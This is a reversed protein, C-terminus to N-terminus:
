AARLHRYAPVDEPFMPLTEYTDTGTLHYGQLIVNRMAARAASRQAPGLSYCANQFCRFLYELSDADGAAAEDLTEPYLKPSGVFDHSGLGRLFLDIYPEFPKVKAKREAVREKSTRPVKVPHHWSQETFLKRKGWEFNEFRLDAAWISDVGAVRANGVLPVYVRRGDVTDFQGMLSFGSRWLFKGSSQSDHYGVLVRSTAGEPKYFRVLSTQYLVCDFYAMDPGARLLLHPSRADRLPRENPSFLLDGHSRAKCEPERKFHKAAEDYSTIATMSQTQIAFM